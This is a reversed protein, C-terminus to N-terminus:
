HWEALSRRGNGAGSLWAGPGPAVSLWGAQLTSAAAYDRLLDDLAASDVPAAFLALLSGGFGGGMLRAGLCGPLGDLLEVLIDIQTTSVAADDRLSAHSERLLRGMAPQDAAQLAAVFDHVRRQESLLHRIRRRAPDPMAEAIALLEEPPRERFCDFGGSLRRAENLAGVMEAHRRNYESAALQRPQGSDVVVIELGALGSLPVETHSEKWTDILLASDELGFMSAYQDMLGCSTGLALHEARQAARCVARASPLVADPKLALLAGQVAIGTAASSSLGQGVPLDSLIAIQASATETLRALELVYALPGDAATARDLKQVQPEGLVDTVLSLGGAPLSRVAVSVGPSISLPLVAGGAYDIHEGILNIRGPACCCLEPEEGFHRMFFECLQRWGIM